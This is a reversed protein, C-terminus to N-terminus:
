CGFLYWCFIQGMARGGLFMLLPIMVGLAVGSLVAFLVHWWPRRGDTCDCEGNCTPCQGTCVQCDCEEGIPRGCPGRDVEECDCTDGLLNGCPGRDGEECQCPGGILNGCPGRDGEECDCTDGILNGCPGRDGEECQCPGGILNGCPGRDGEECQCTDPCTCAPPCDHDRCDPCITTTCDCCDAICEDGECICCDETCHIVCHDCPPCDCEPIAVFVPQLTATYAVGDAISPNVALGAVGLQLNPMTAPANAWIVHSLNLETEAPLSACAWGLFIYGEPATPVPVAAIAAGRIGTRVTAGFVLEFTVPSWQAYLNIVADEDEALSLDGSILAGDPQLSWGLFTYGPNSNMFATTPVTITYDEGPEGLGFGPVLTVNGGNARYVVIVRTLECDCGCNVCERPCDCPCDNICEDGECTCCDGTCVVECYECEFECGCDPIEVFVPELTATYDIGEAASATPTLGNVLQLNPMTAPAASWILNTDVAWGVFIYGAQTPAPVAAIDAGTVGTRTIPTDGDDFVLEFVLAEWQAFLDIMSVNPLEFDDGEEFLPNTEANIASSLRTWGIFRYGPRGFTAAPWTPEYDAGQTGGSMEPVEGLVLSGDANARYVIIVNGPLAVVANFTITRITVVECDECEDGLCGAEECEDVETTIVAALSVMALVQGITKDTDYPIFVTAGNVEVEWGRLEQGAPILPLLLDLDILSTFLETDLITLDYNSDDDHVPVIGRMLNITYEEAGADYILIYTTNGAITNYWHFDTLDAPIAPSTAGDGLAIISTLLLGDLQLPEVRVNNRMGAEVAIRAENNPLTGNDNFNVETPLAPRLAGGPLRVMYQVTAYVNTGQAAINPIPAVLTTPDNPTGLVNVAASLAARHATVTATNAILHQPQSWPGTLPRAPLQTSAAIVQNRLTTKNVWNVGIQIHHGINVQNTTGTGAGNYTRHWASFPVVYGETHLANPPSGATGEQWLTSTRFHIGRNNAALTAYHAGEGQPPASPNIQSGSRSGYAGDFRGALSTINGQGLEMRVNDGTRHRVSYTLSFGPIAHGDMRADVVINGMHLRQTYMYDIRGLHLYNGGHILHLNGRADHDAPPNWGAPFPIQQQVILNFEPWSRGWLNDEWFRESSYRNGTAFLNNHLGIVGVMSGMHVTDGAGRQQGATGVIRANPAWVVTYAQAVFEGPFAPDDIEYSATWTVIRTDMPALDAGAGFTSRGSLDAVPNHNNSRNAPLPQYTFSTAPGPFSPFGGPIDQLDPGQLQDNTISVLRVRPDPSSFHLRVYDEAGVQHGPLINSIQDITRTFGRAACTVCMNTATCGAVTCERNRGPQTTAMQLWITEPALFTILPIDVAPAETTITDETDFNPSASATVSAVVVMTLLMAVSLLIGLWRRGHKKVTSM